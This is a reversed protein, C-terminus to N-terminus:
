VDGPILFIRRRDHTSAAIAEYAAAADNGSVRSGLTLQVDAPMQRLLPPATDHTENTMLNLQFKTKKPRCGSFGGGGGGANGSSAGCSRTMVLVAPTIATFSTQGASGPSLVTNRALGGGAGPRPVPPSTRMMPMPGAGTAPKASM